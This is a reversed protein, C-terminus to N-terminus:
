LDLLHWIKIKDLLIGTHFGNWNALNTSSYNGDNPTGSLAIGFTWDLVGAGPTRYNSALVGVSSGNGIL